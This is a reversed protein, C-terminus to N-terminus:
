GGFKRKYMAHQQNSVKLREDAFQGQQTSRGAADNQRLVGERQRIAVKGGMSNMNMVNQANDRDTMVYIEDSNKIKDSQTGEEFAKEERDKERKEAQLLFWGDLMDDDAIVSETPCDISEQINDYMMSWVIINQQNVSKERDYNAFLRVGTHERTAWLSKWPENRALERISPQDLMSDKYYNLITNESVQGKSFDYPEGDLVTCRCVLWQWKAISAMGEITQTSFQQRKAELEAINKEGARLYARIQKVSQTSKRSNFIQKKLSKIDEHLGELRNKDGRTWLEKEIMWRLMEEDSMIDSSYAEDYAEEGVEEAECLIDITPTLIKLKIGEVNIPVVGSRITCVFYEREHQKM